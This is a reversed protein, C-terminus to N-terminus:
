NCKLLELCKELNTPNEKSEVERRSEEFCKKCLVEGKKVHSTCRQDLFEHRFGHCRYCKGDKKEYNLATQKLMYCIWKIFLDEDIKATLAPTILSECENVIKEKIDFLKKILSTYPNRKNKNKNFPFIPYEIDSKNQLDQELESIVDYIKDVTSNYRDTYLVSDEDYTIVTAHKLMLHTHYECLPYDRVIEPTILEAYFNEPFDSYGVKKSIKKIAPSGCFICVKM